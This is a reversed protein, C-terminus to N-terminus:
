GEGFFEGLAALVPGPAEEPLFHGCQIPLGRVDAAWAKWTDIIGDRRRGVGTEGWLILTPCTIRRKRADEADVEVDITAGARYDDCSARVTEPDSFAADYEAMAEADFAFGKGAWRQLCEHLYYLPDAGILREPLGGPQALFTWHYVALGTARGWTEWMEWTPVIDLVALRRVAAPHDIAMRYAVRGGRDHGAVSFTDFGLSAMVEVMDRAMTRKSYNVNGDGAPPKGSSGYGRLDPVVTTYSRALAPAVAHWMAGTQPYGHLLLLPPGDGGVRTHITTGNAEITRASFGEFM